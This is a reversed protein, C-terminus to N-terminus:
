SGVEDNGIYSGLLFHDPSGLLSVPPQSTAWVMLNHVYLNEPFEQAATGHLEMSEQNGLVECNRYIQLIQFHKTVLNSAQHASHTAKQLHVENRTRPGGLHLPSATNPM